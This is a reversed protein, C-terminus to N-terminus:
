WKCLTTVPFRLGFKEGKITPENNLECMLLRLRGDEFGNKIDFDRKHGHWAPYEKGQFRILMTQEIVPELAIHQHILSFVFMPAFHFQGQADTTTNDTHLKEDPWWAKRIIEAGAAPKGHLTVVGSVESYLCAKAFDLFGM